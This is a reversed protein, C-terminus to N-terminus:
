SIQTLLATVILNQMEYFNYLKEAIDTVDKYMKTEILTYGAREVTKCSAQNATRINAILKSITYHKLMHRSM